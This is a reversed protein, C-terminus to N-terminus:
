LKNFKTIFVRDNEIVRLFYIGSVLGRIRIQNDKVEQELIMKANMDFVTVVAKPEANLIYLVDEAPNPYIRIAKSDYDEDMGIILEFNAVLIRDQLVTFTYLSDTFVVSGDETWNVFHYGIAPIAALEASAGYPYLGTGNVSGSNVPDVVASVNFTDPEFHATFVRDHTIVFSYATDSTVLTDEEKWYLFHYGEEPAATLEVTDGYYYVGQGALTGANLPDVITVVEFSDLAFHAVLTRSTLVTFSYVPETSVETGNETWNIFYFGTAPSATLGATEGWAYYGSGSVTGSNVPDVSATINFTDLEFHATFVRAHTVIFSFATDTTIITDNEKWYLFHYGEAASAYIDATDGFYYYGFGSLTGASGPIVTGTINFSDTAFNAMLNRDSSVIFSYVPDSSVEMGNETWNVFHYGYNASATLTATGGEIYDGAGTVTGASTLNIGASISFLLYVTVDSSVSDTCQGNFSKLKVTYTGSNDYVHVPNLDTSFQGDGFNWLRSTGNVSTNTFIVEHQNISSTFGSVPVSITELYISDSNQCYNTDSITVIYNGALVAPIIQVSDGTNWSNAHYTGADLWATDGQCISISDILDILPVPFITLLVESPESEVEGFMQTAYFRYTGPETEGATFYNGTDLLLSLDPSNYWKISDGQAFLDPVPLGYCVEVNQFLPPFPSFVKTTAEAVPLKTEINEASDTAIVYFSYITDHIGICTVTTDRIKSIWKIFPSENVKVYLDYFAIGADVDIGEWSISFTDPVSAQLPHFTSVPQVLDIINVWTPTLIPQNYDFVISAFNEIETGHPLSDKLDVSFSVYGEGEGDNVNPPLFGNFPDDVLELTVPDFTGFYWTAIGTNENLKANIRVIANKEPQLDIQTSYEKLGSPAQVVTDGFSFRGMSFTELDFVETDLTDYVYVERAPATASDANEFHVEYNFNKQDKFYLSGLSSRYGYKDNPDLSNVLQPSIGPPDAPPPPFEPPWCSLVSEVNSAFKTLVKFVKWVIKGVKTVPIFDTSCEVILKTWEWAYSRTSKGYATERLVNLTQTFCAAGPVLEELGEEMISKLCGEMYSGKSKGGQLTDDDFVTPGAVWATIRIPNVMRVKMSYVEKSNAMILPLYFVYLRVPRLIFDGKNTTDNELLKLSTVSANIYGHLGHYNSKKGAVVVPLPDPVEERVTLNTYIPISDYPYSQNFESSITRDLDFQLEVELHTTDNYFAVYLLMGEADVNGDNGVSISYNGTGGFLARPTGTLSVWPKPLVGEEITFANEMIIEPEGPISVVINYLGIPKNLLNFRILMLNTSTYYNSDMEIEMDQNVLKVRTDATFGFGLFKVTVKGANGATHPSYNSVGVIGVSDCLTMTGCENTVQQCLQYVGPTTYTHVPNSLTSTSGDGFTWLYDDVYSAQDILTVTNQTIIHDFRAIPGYDTCVTFPIQKKLSWNGAEDRVRISLKHIGLELQPLIMPFQENLMDAAQIPIQTGNGFGPDTDIFYEAQVIPPGDTIIQTVMTDYIFFLSRMPISWVEEEDKVRLYLYHFGKEMGESDFTFDKDLIDGSVVPISTGNGYGPDTDFYYEAYTLPSGAPMEEPQSDDYSYFMQRSYLSWVTDINRARVHLYHFGESLGTLPVSFNFDVVEGSSINLPVGNGTGPDIDIFYEAALINEGSSPVDTISFDHSLECFGDNVTVTYPGPQLNNVFYNTSGESWLYSYAGSGGTVEVEASGNANGNTANNITLVSAPNEYVTIELTESIMTIGDASTALVYYQGSETVTISQTTDGTSWLFAEAQSASLLVSNGACFETSGSITITTEPVEGVFVQHIVSSWCDLDNVVVLRVTYVGPTLFTHTIDKTFYEAITDGNLEWYYSTTDTVNSSLNTFTTAEGANVTDATFEPQPTICTNNYLTFTRSQYLGWNGEADKVRIYVTHSGANLGSLPITRWLDYTNSITVELPNGNGPGPDHDIFYEAAVLPPSDATMEPSVTDYIEIKHSKYLSWQMEKDQVRIQLYHFGPNLGTLPLTFHFDVEDASYINLPIGSGVGPDYDFFYEANLINGTQSTTNQIIFNGTSPCFGDDVHLTYNGPSLNNVFSEVSGTSWLYDYSGSGGSVTVHAAGNNLNDTCNYSYLSVEPREHLQINKTVSQVLISDESIVYVYYSGEDSVNIIKTTEGTSWLYWIGESAELAVTDGRCLVSDGLIAIQSSPVSGVNVQHIVSSHCDSGNHVTLLVDYVGNSIFTHSINRSTYDIIGDLNIDWEYTSTDTTNASLNEFLTPLGADVVNSTFEAVPLTCAPEVVTIGKRAYLSWQGDFDMVRIYLKHNGASLGSLNITRQIEASDFYNIEFPVGQGAGPDTDYFYEAAIVSKSEPLPEPPQTDYIYFVHRRYNGWNGEEDKVRLYLDHFGKQLGTLPLEFEQDVLDGPTIVLPIGQGAGPDHDIFYEAAVLPASEPAPGPQSDDYVYFRATKYISWTMNNDRARIFLYHSGVSLGSLPLQFSFDVIGGGPINIETGEGTGPDTDIFYECRVIDGSLTLQNSLMFASDFLCFGDSVTVSYTGSSLNNIYYETAGTSWFYSYQGSGGSATVYASGNDLNDSGNYYHLAVDPKDFVTIRITESRIMIHDASTVWVYYMGSTGTQIGQTTDGTSWRYRIGESATLLVTGGECFSTDGTVTIAASPVIGVFVQHINSSVCIGGNSVTLKVDYVGTSTFTHVIDRSTYDTMGDSNVDWAYETTDTVNDTLNTFQVPTGAGAVTSQFDADPVECSAEVVTVDKTLYLSWNGALDMVRIYLKHQGPSLGELKVTRLLNITDSATIEFAVALGAGPDTDFFYEAAAIVEQEAVPMPPQSEYVYFIHRFPISWTDNVDKVRIYLYHFGPGHGTLSLEFDQDAQEGPTIVVPIGNGAGPDHNIFYEAQTLNQGFTFGCFLLFIFHFLIKTKM